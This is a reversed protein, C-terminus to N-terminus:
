PVQNQTPASLLYAYHTDRGVKQWGPDAAPISTPVSKAVIVRAGTGAFARIARSQVSPSAEWFEATDASRIEAVVQVRGLRAWFASNSDGILAVKDGPQIGMQQLDRAIEWHVHQSRAGWNALGYALKFATNSGLTIAVALTVGALIRRSDMTDPLRIQSLVGAWFLVVFPAVYRTHVVVLAYLSMAAIAPLLLYWGGAVERPWPGRRHRALLLVIVGALLGAQTQLFLRAYIVINQLILTVQRKLSFQVQLGEMWYSRDYTRPYTGGVPQGFELIPPVDLILRLPHKPTGTGPIQGRWSGEPIEPNMNWAYNLKGADGFTFRGKQLSLALIFPSIVALFTVFAALARPTSRRLNGCVFLSVGLFVFAVALMATKALYSLGLVAGLSVFLPWNAPDTRLRLLLGAALYVLLMVLLDPYVATLNLLDITSWLFLTYGLALWTWRPWTAPAGFATSGQSAAPGPIVARWFFDFAWLTGVFIVLNALHVTAFEWYPTPQLAWLFFGIVISYLPSWYGNIATKWDGRWYADAVDVYALGDPGMGHRNVWNYAAAILIAGAWFLWRLRQLTRTERFENKLTYPDSATKM